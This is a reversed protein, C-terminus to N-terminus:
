PKSGQAPSRENLAKDIQKLAELKREADAARREATQARQEAQEVRKQDDVARQSARRNADANRRQEALLQAYLTAADRLPTALDPMGAVEDALAQAAAEDRAPHQPAALLMALQLRQTPTTQAAVDATEARLEIPGMARVRGLYDSWSIPVAPLVVVPPAPPKSVIPAAARPREAACGALAALMLMAVVPAPARAVARDPPM